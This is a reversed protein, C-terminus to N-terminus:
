SKIEIVGPKLQNKLQGQLLSILPKLTKYTNDEANFVFVAIPYKSFNQQYQLNKDFTLLADFGENLMMNLLEGNKKSNWGMEWVTFIEHNPFDLKIRKPLNEDILLKM